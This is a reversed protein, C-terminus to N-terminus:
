RVEPSWWAESRSAVFPRSAHHARVIATAVGPHLVACVAVEDRGFLAGLSEKKAWAIAKGSAIAQDVAPLKAAAAADVAVVVLEARGERLADCVLDAGAVVLKGRRAGALLGAIRRSAAVVIQEAVSEPTVVVKTKFARSFGARCAKAVCDVAPHVHAGRGFASDALDIAVMANTGNQPANQPVNPAQTADTGPQAAEVVAAAEAATEDLVVRVLEDASARKGCGACTRVSGKRTPEAGEVRVRPARMGRVQDRKARAEHKVHEVNM